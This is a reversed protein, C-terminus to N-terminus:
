KWRRANDKRLGADEAPLVTRPQMRFDAALQEPLPQGPTAEGDIVDVGLAAVEAGPAGNLMLNM